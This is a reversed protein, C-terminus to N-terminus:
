FIIILILLLLIAGGIILIWDQQTLRTEGGTLTGLKPNDAASFDADSFDSQAHQGAPGAPATPQAPTKAPMLPVPQFMAPATLSARAAPLFAFLAVASVVLTAVIKQWSNRPTQM